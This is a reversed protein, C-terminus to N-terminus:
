GAICLACYLARVTQIQLFYISHRVLEESDSDSDDSPSGRLYLNGGGKLKLSALSHAAEPARQSAGKVTEDNNIKSVKIIEHLPIRFLATTPDLTKSFFMSNQTLCARTQTHTHTNYTSCWPL